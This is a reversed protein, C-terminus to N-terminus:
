SDVREQSAVISTLQFIQALPVVLLAVLDKLQVGVVRWWSICAHSLGLASLQLSTSM